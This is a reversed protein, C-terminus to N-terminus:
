RYLRTISINQVLKLVDIFRLLLPGSREHWDGHRFSLSSARVRESWYSDYHLL